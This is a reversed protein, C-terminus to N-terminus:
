DKAEPTATRLFLTHTAWQVRVARLRDRPDTLQQGRLGRVPRSLAAMRRAEQRYATWDVLDWPFPDHPGAAQRACHVLVTLMADVVSTTVPTTGTGLTRDGHTVRYAYRGHSDMAGLTVTFRGMPTLFTRTTDDSGSM